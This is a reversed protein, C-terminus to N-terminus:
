GHRRATAGIAILILMACTASPEPVNAAALAAQWDAAFSAPLDAAPAPTVSTNYHQAMLALDLFDVKGDYNFDGHMWWNDTTASVDTNYSQALKALDLFDVSADLNADGALTAVLTLDTDSYVPAYLLGNGASTGTYSTFIGSRSAFSMVKYHYLNPSVFSPANAIALTGALTAAATVTFQDQNVGPTRGGIQV